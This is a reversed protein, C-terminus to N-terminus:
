KSLENPARPFLRSWIEDCLTTLVTVVNGDNTLFAIDDGAARAIGARAPLLSELRHSGAPGWVQQAAEEVQDWIRQREASLPLNPMLTGVVGLLDIDLKMDATVSKATALFQKVAETSLKDVMTPVLLAHAAVLANISGLTMRPPMDLIIVEYRERIEPNLLLRALRYRADVSQDPNMLWELLLRNETSGFSYSAPVLWGQRLKRHLHITSEALTALSAERTFLRESYSPVEDYGAAFMMMNSLSGQYDLDILLVPREQKESIYAALNAAITTKGVGGKLNGIALIKAGRTRPYWAAYEPFPAPPYARWLSHGGDVLRKLNQDLKEVRARETDLAQQQTSLKAQAEILSRETNLQKAEALAAEASKEALDRSSAQLTAATSQHIDVMDRKARYGLYFGAATVPPGLILAMLDFFPKHPSIQARLADQFYWATGVALAGAGFCVQWHREIWQLLREFKTRKM